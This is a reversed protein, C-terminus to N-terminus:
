FTDDLTKRFYLVKSWNSYGESQFLRISPLNDDLILCAIIKLGAKRLAKEARRILTRAINNGRFEPMVALRNIWGKRGDSTALVLGVLMEDIYAGICFEPTREIQRRLNESSDRGVPKVPLGSKQWVEIIKDYQTTALSHYTIETM